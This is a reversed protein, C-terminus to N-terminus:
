WLASIPNRRKWRCCPLTTTASITIPASGCTPTPSMEIKDAAIRYQKPPRTWVLKNVDFNM